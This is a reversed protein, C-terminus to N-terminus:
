LGDNKADAAVVRASGDACKVLARHSGRIRRVGGVVGHLGVDDGSAVPALHPAARAQM